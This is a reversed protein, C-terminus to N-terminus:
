PGESEDRTMSELDVSPLTVAVVNSPAVSPASPQRPYTLNGGRAAQALESILTM